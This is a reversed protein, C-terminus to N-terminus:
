RSAAYRSLSFSLSPPLSLSLGALREKRTCTDPIRVPSCLYPFCPRCAICRRGYIRVLAHAHTRAHTHARRRLLDRECENGRACLYVGAASNRAYLNLYTIILTIQVTSAATSAAALRTLANARVPSYIKIIRFVNFNITAERARDGVDNREDRALCGLVVQICTPLDNM